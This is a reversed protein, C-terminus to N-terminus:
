NDIRELRVTKSISKTYGYSLKVFLETQYTDQSAPIRGEAVMCKITGRNNTMRLPSPTCTIDGNAISFGSFAMEDIHVLNYDTMGLPASSCAEGVKEKNFVSGGGKNEITLVFQPRVYADGQPLIREEISSIVVPGGQGGSLSIRRPTCVKQVPKLGFIDTDVCIGASAQTEYPYCATVIITTDHQMIQPDIQRPELTALVVVEDGRPFINSRGRLQFSAREPSGGSSVAAESFDWGQINVYEKEVALSIYGLNVDTAGTNALRLGVPFTLSEGEEPAYFQDPPANPVFQMTIAGTGRRYDAVQPGSTRSTCAPVVLLMLLMVSIVICLGIGKRRSMMEEAEHPLM